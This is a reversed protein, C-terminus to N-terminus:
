MGTRTARRSQPPRAIAAQPAPFRCRIAAVVCLPIRVRVGKGLYGYQAAVFTRYMFWRAARHLDGLDEPPDESDLEYQIIREREATDEGLTDLMLLAACRLVIAAKTDTLQAAARPSPERM